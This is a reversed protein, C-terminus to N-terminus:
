VVVEITKRAKSVLKLFKRNGNDHKGNGVVNGTVRIAIQRVNECFIKADM